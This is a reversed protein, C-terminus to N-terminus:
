GSPHPRISVRRRPLLDGSQTGSRIGGGDHRAAAVGEGVRHGQGLRVGNDEVDFQDMGSTGFQGVAFGVEPRTSPGLGIFDDPGAKEPVDSGAFDHLTQGFAVVSHDELIVVAARGFQGEAQGRLIVGKGEGEARVGGDTFVFLENQTRRGSQVIQPAVPAHVLEDDHITRVESRSGIRDGDLRRVLEPAAMRVGNEDRHKVAGGSNFLGVSTRDSRLNKGVGSSIARGPGDTPPGGPGGDLVGPNQAIGQAPGDARSDM